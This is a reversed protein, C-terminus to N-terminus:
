SGQPLTSNRSASPSSYTMQTNTTHALQQMGLSSQFVQGNEYIAYLNGGTFLDKKVDTVLGYDKAQKPTLTTRDLMDKEVQVLTRTSTDAIVRAINEADIKVSKLHEELGKEDLVVQGNM